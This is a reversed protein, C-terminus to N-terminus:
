KESKVYIARGQLVQKETPIAYLGGGYTSGVVTGTQTGSSELVIGNAGVKAAQRKLEALAYDTRGQETWGSASGAKVIAIEEYSAPPSTYLKVAEVAVPEHKEGVMIVSGQACACLSAISMATLLIRM